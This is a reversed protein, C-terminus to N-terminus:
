GIRDAIDHDYVYVTVPGLQKTAVPKGYAPDVVPQNPQTGDVVLYSRKGPKPTYWSDIYHQYFRCNGSGCALIPYAQTKFRSHWTLAHSDWFAAYGHDAGNASTFREIENALAETPFNADKIPNPERVFQILATFTFVTAVVGALWRLDLRVALLPVLVALGVWASMLYRSGGVDFAASTFTFALLDIAVVAFWFTLVGIFVRQPDADALSAPVGADGAAAPAEPAAVEAPAEVGGYRESWVARKFLRVATVLVTITVVVVLLGAALSLASLAGVPEGYARGGPLVPAIQLLLQFHGFIQDAGIIEVERHTWSINAAQAWADLLKAGGVAIASTLAALVLLERDDRWLAIALAAALLAGVGVAIVLVDTAGVASIAGVVVAGLYGRVGTRWRRDTLAVTFAAGLLAVHFAAPGHTNLSWMTTRVALGGCIVISATTVAAWRSDTARRVAYGALLATGFWIAFPVLQWVFHHNPLWSTARLLWFAEYWPYDGLVITAGDPAQGVLEALVPASAFDGHANLGARLQGQSAVLVVLYAVAAFAPAWLVTRTLLRSPM